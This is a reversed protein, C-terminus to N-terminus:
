YKFNNEKINCFINKCPGTDDNKINAISRTNGQISSNSNSVTLKEDGVCRRFHPTMSTQVRGGKGYSFYIGGLLQIVNKTWVFICLVWKLPLPHDFNVIDVHDCTSSKFDNQNAFNM